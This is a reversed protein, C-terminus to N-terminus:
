FQVGSQMGKLLYHTWDITNASVLATIPLNCTGKFVSNMSDILNTTMHGWRRGGDFERTWKDVPINDIWRLGDGNTM